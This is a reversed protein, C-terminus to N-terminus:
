IVQQSPCAYFSTSMRCSALLIKDGVPVGKFYGSVGPIEGLEHINSKSTRILGLYMLDQVKLKPLYGYLHVYSFKDNTFKFLNSNHGHFCILGSISFALLTSAKFMTLDLGPKGASRCLIEYVHKSIHHKGVELMWIARELKDPPWDFHIIDNCCNFAIAFLMSDKYWLSKRDVGKPYFMKFSRNMMANFVHESGSYDFRKSKTGPTVRSADLDICREVTAYLVVFLGSMLNTYRWKRYLLTYRQLGTLGDRYFLGMLSLSAEYTLPDSVNTRYRCHAQELFWTIPQQLRENCLFDLMKLLEDNSASELSFLFQVVKPFNEKIVTATTVSQRIFRLRFRLDNCLVQRTSCSLKLVRRAGYSVFSSYFSGLIVVWTALGNPYACPLNVRQLPLNQWYKFGKITPFVDDEFSLCPLIFLDDDESGGTLHTVIQCYKDRVFLLLIWIMHSIQCLFKYDHINLVTEQVRGRM